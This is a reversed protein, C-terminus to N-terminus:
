VSCSSRIMEKCCIYVYVNINKVYVTSKKLFPKFASVQRAPNSVNSQLGSASFQLWLFLAFFFFAFTSIYLAAIHDICGLKLFYFYFQCCHYKSCYFAHRKSSWTVNNVARVYFLLYCRSKVRWIALVRVTPCVADEAFTATLQICPQM